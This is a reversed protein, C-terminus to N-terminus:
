PHYGSQHMLTSALPSGSGFTSVKNKASVQNGLLKNLHRQAKQLKNAKARALLESAAFLIILTADLTSSDQNAVLPVLEKNGKFRIYGGTIPTPWVRYSLGGSAEWCRVPDASESNAGGALVRGESIGYTLPLWQQGSGTITYAERIMDFKLTTGYAYSYTGPTLPRDDRLMLEPWTFATWLEEQTRKIIYKLTQESNVGQAVSTSHGAEARLNSLMESLTQTRAM